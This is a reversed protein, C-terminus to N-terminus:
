FLHHEERHCNACLLVCKDLELKLADTLGGRQSFYDKDKTSPDVHHFELASLCKNYGCKSCKGGKYNVALQKTNRQRNKNTVVICSKCFSSSKTSSYFDTLPKSLNCKTCLKMGTEDNSKRLTKLGFKNLWYRVNPQTTNNLEAIKWTIYGQEIQQILIEKNMSCFYLINRLYCFQIKTRKLILPSFM